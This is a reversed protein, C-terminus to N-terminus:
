RFWKELHLHCGGELFCKVLRANAVLVSMQLPSDVMPSMTHLYSGHRILTTAIDIKERLVAHQLPTYGRRDVVNLKAGNELLLSVASLQSRSAISLPSEGSKNLTNVDANHGLLLEMVKLHGCEAARLLGDNLNLETGPSCNDMFHKVIPFHGRLCALSFPTFSFQDVTDLECKHKVLHKVIVLNGRVAAIHLPSRGDGNVGIEAGKELLWKVMDPHDGLTAYHLATHFFPGIWNVDAGKSLLLKAMTIDGYTAAWQLATKGEKLGNGELECKNEIFLDVLDLREMRAATVVPTEFYCQSGCYSPKNIDAGLSILKEVMPINEHEIALFLATKHQINTADLDVEGTTALLTASDLDNKFIADFFQVNYGDFDCVDATAM